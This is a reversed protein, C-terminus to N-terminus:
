NVVIKGRNNRSLLQTGTKKEPSMWKLLEKRSFFLKNSGSRKHFPIQEKHKLNYITSSSLKTIKCAEKLGVIDESEKDPQYLLQKLIGKIEDLEKHIKELEEM